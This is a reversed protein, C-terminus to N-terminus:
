IPEPHPHCMVTFLTYRLISTEDYQTTTSDHWNEARYEYVLKSFLSCSFQQMVDLTMVATQRYLHCSISWIGFTYKHGDYLYSKSSFRSIHAINITAYVTLLICRSTATSRVDDFYTHWCVFFYLLFCHNELMIYISCRYLISLVNIQKEPPPSHVYFLDTSASPMTRRLYSKSMWLYCTWQWTFSIFLSVFSNSMRCADDRGGEYFQDLGWILLWTLNAM